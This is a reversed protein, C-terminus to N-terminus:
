RTDPTRTRWPGPVASPGASLASHTCLLVRTGGIHVSVLLCTDKRQYWAGPVACPLLGRGKTSPFGSPIDLNVRVERTESCPPSSPPGLAFASGWGGLPGVWTEM